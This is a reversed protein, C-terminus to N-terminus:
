LVAASMATLTREVVSACPKNGVMGKHVPVLADAYIHKQGEEFDVADRQFRGILLEDFDPERKCLTLHFVLIKESPDFRVFNLPKKPYLLSAPLLSGVEKKAM